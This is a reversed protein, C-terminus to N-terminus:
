DGLMRGYPQLSEINDFVAKIGATIPIALVLGLAGWITGWFMLAVTVALPNLHVRAGVISPYLLNLALLHFFAVTAGILLYPTVTDYTMLASAMPPILALPLGVYPILSLFGSLCGVLIWYPLRWSWFAICSALSLLFGLIFNGVVYARAMNAISQWSRGAIAREPGEFLSLFSKRLHDRWSLMFYVLFPVFSIMLLVNYFSSLYGYVYNVIFTRDQRIRVEQVQPTPPPDNRRARRRPQPQPDSQVREKEQFRKPVLLRYATQETQEIREAVTDVLENIRQSYAPLEDALNALQAFLGMGMFYILLLACSCVIFSAVSRPLRMRMFFAVFPELMFALIVSVALTICFARGFYLLAVAVGLGTFFVGTTHLKSAHEPPALLPM